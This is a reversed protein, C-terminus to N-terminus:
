ERIRTNLVPVQTDIDADLHARVLLLNQGDNTLYM